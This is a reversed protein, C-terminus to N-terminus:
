INSEQYISADNSMWKVFLPTLIKKRDQYNCKVHSDDMDEWSGRRKHGMQDQGCCIHQRKEMKNETASFLNCM